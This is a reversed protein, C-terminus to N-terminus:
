VTADRLLEYIYNHIEAARMFPFKFRFDSLLLEQLTKWETTLRGDHDRPPFLLEAGVGGYPSGKGDFFKLWPNQTTHGATTHAVVRCWISGAWCLDDRLVDAFSDEGSGPATDPDDDPDNGTSCAYLVVHTNHHAALKEEFEDWIPKDKPGFKPHM